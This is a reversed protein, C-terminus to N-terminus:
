ARTELLRGYLQRHQEIRRHLSFLEFARGRAADKVDAQAERDELLQAIPGVMSKGPVCKFLLGTRKHTILETVAPVASGIVTAEAGMAWAISTTPIDGRPAVVLADCVSVLEEFDIGHDSELLKNPAILRVAFEKIRRREPSDGPVIVNMDHRGAYDTAATAFYADFHGGERTAPEPTIVLLGAPHVGLRERLTGQRWENIRGFDIGPRVVTCVAPAVGGEILRRRVTECSCVVAFGKSEALTRVMRVHKAAILPDFLELVVPAGGAARAAAAAQPGWAHILDVGRRRLFRGVGPAALPAYKFLRAVTEVPRNLSGLRAVAMGDITALSQVFHDGPLGDLLQAVGVRQEWGASGDFLHCIHTM